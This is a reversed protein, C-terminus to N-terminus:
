LFRNKIISKKKKLHPIIFLTIQFSLFNNFDVKEKRINSPLMKPTTDINIFSIIIFYEQVTIVIIKM